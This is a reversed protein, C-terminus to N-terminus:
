MDKWGQEKINLRREEQNYVCPIQATKANALPERIVDIEWRGYTGDTEDDYLYRASM